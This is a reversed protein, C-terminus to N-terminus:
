EAAAEIYGDYKLALKALLEAHNKEDSIIEEIIKKDEPDIIVQLLQYYGKIAEQEDQGNAAIAAAVNYDKHSHDM